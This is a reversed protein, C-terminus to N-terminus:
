SLHAQLTELLRGKNDVSLDLSADIAQMVDPITGHLHELIGDIRASGADKSDDKGSAQLDAVTQDLLGQSAALLLATSESLRRAGSGPKQNLVLLLAQQRRLEKQTAALNSQSVGELSDNAQSLVLRLGEVVKRLAPADARSQTDAGIGVRTVSRQPDMPPWQGAGQQLDEDMWIQGDSMSILDEVHQLVLRRKGETVSPIPIQIKRLNAQTLPIKKQVLLAIREQVKAPATDFDEPAFVHADRGEGDDNDHAARSPITTVLVITVSGGGLKAKYQASRQILSSYFARMESSAGGERDAQVVADIGFVDVLVRTTADWLAKHGDMTDIIVVAHKGQRAHQEGLACATGAMAVGEAARVVPDQSSSSSSSKSRAVVQVQPPLAQRIDGNADEDDDLAAYIVPHAAKGDSSNNDDDDNNQVLQRVWDMLYPRTNTAADHTVWLMNQGRGIPALADVMTVGTLVPANILAIEKVQPIPSFIARGDDDNAATTATTTTTTTADEADDLPQGFANVLSAVRSSVTSMARLIQVKGEPPGNGHLANGDGDDGEDDNLTSHRHYCFALPPRHAVVLGHHHHADRGLVVIKGLLDAAEDSNGGVDGEEIQVATLGGHYRAVVTGRALVQDNDDDNATADSAAAESSPAVTAFQRTIIRCTPKHRQPALTTFGHVVTSTRRTPLTWLALLLVPSSSFRMTASLDQCPGLLPPLLRRRPFPRRRLQPPLISLRRVSHM